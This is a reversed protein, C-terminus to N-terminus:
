IEEDNTDLSEPFRSEIQLFLKELAERFTRTTQRELLKLIYGKIIDNLHVMDSRTLNGHQQLLNQLNEEFMEENRLNDILNGIVILVDDTHAHLTQNDDFYNLYNPYQDYFQAFISRAHSIQDIKLMSWAVILATKQAETLKFFEDDQSASALDESFM